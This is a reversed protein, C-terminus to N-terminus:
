RGRLRRWAKVGLAAAALLALGAAVPKIFPMVENRRRELESLIDDLDARLEDAKRDLREVEASADAPEPESM